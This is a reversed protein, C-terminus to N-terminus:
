LDVDLDLVFQNSDDTLHEDLYPSYTEVTVKHARPYITMLRLFGDGGETMGRGPILCPEYLNPCTQYNALMQHVHSGDPRMSTLRGAGPFLVHGSFVFLLNSHLAVLKRWMEEGDNTSGPMKYWHPNWPQQTPKAAFDYRGGDNFMYAHTLLIAPLLRHRALVDNAWTLVEDRAGFEVTLILWERGGATIIAYHNEIRDPEFTEQLWPAFGSVPFYKNMGVATRKVDALTTIDHNGTALVYPVVNDLMHLSNSARKWQEDNDADVIDGEHLVFALELATRNSVLWGVQKDFIAPYSSAYFQTDPLIAISFRGTPDWGGDLSGGDSAGADDEARAQADPLAAADLTPTPAAVDDCGLPALGGLLALLWGRLRAGAIRQRTRRPTLEPM